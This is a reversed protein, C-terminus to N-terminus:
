GQDDSLQGLGRALFGSPRWTMIVPFVKPSSKTSPVKQSRSCCSLVSMSSLVVVSPPSSSDVSHHLAVFRPGTISPIAWLQFENGKDYVWLTANTGPQKSEDPITLAYNTGRDIITYGKGTDQFIWGYPETTVNVSHDSAPSLYQETPHLKCAITQPVETM